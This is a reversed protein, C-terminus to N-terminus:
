SNPDTAVPTKAYIGRLPLTLNLAELSLVADLGEFSRWLWESNTESQRTFLEVLPESQSILVYWRLSDLHRYHWFKKGRDYDETGSSLVELLLVPNLLAQRTLDAFKSPGCVISADPYTELGTAEIRVRMNSEYVRCPHEELANGFHRIANATIISHLESGGATVVVRGQRYEHRREAKAEFATYEELTMPLERKEAVSM